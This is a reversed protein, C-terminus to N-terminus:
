ISSIRKRIQYSLTGEGSPHKCRGGAHLKKAGSNTKIKPM